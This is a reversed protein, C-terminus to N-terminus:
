QASVKCTYQCAGAKCENSVATTTPNNACIYGCAGCNTADTSNLAHCVMGSAELCPTEESNTCSNVVCEGGVCVTSEGNENVGCVKGCAGCNNSDQLMAEDSICNIGVDTSSDSCNEYGPDCVYQCVGESCKDSTANPVSHESCKYDCGGCRDANDSHVNFCLNQYEGVPNGEEDLVIQEEGDLEPVFTKCMDPTGAEASPGLCNNRVCLGDQCVHESNCVPILSGDTEDIAACHGCHKNNNLLNIECGNASKQVVGEIETNAAYHLGDCDAYNDICTIQDNVADYYKVNVKILETECGNFKDNDWNAYGEVCEIRDNVADYYSVHIQSLRVECGTTINNDWDVFGDECKLVNNECNDIHVNAFILCNGQCNQENGTCRSSCQGNSCVTMGTATNQTCDELKAGCETASDAVCTGDKLHYYGDCASAVCKSQLAGDDLVCYVTLAGQQRCSIGLGGCNEVTDNECYTNALNPHTGPACDLIFDESNVSCHYENATVQNCNPFERPCIGAGFQDKYDSCGKEINCTGIQVLRGEVRNGDEDVPPCSVIINDETVNKDYKSSDWTCGTAGALVTMTLALLASHWTKSQFRHKM